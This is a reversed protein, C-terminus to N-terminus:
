FLVLQLRNEETRMPEYTNTDQVNFKTSNVVVVSSNISNQVIFEVFTTPQHFFFFFFTISVYTHITGM